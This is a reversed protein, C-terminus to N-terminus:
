ILRPNQKIFPKAPNSLPLSQDEILYRYFKEVSKIEQMLKFPSIDKAQERWRKYEFVDPTGFQELGSAEPFHSFFRELFKDHYLMSKRGYLHYLWSEYKGLWKRVPYKIPM